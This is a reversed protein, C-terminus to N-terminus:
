NFDFPLDSSDLEVEDGMTKYPDDTSANTENKVETIEKKNTSLFSIKETMVEMVYHKKGEQDEYNRTQLRGRVGVLDGKHCYIATSEAFPSFISCNIFDTEYEGNMNKFPRSIAITINTIIKGNQTSRKEPDKTLRGVLIVQNM